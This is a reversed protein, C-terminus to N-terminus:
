SARVFIDIKRAFGHLGVLRRPCHNPDEDNERAFLSHAEESDVQREACDDSM